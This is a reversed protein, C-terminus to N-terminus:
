LKLSVGANLGIYLLLQVQAADNLIQLVWDFEEALNSLLLVLHIDDSLGGCNHHTLLTLITGSHQLTLLALVVKTLIAEVAGMGCALPTGM